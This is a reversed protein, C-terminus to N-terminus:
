GIVGFENRIKQQFNKIVKFIEKLTIQEVQTLKDPEVYNTPPLYDDIISKAQHKLRLGMLYYYTHMIERYDEEHFVGKQMLAKLREGTNTNGVGHKLAYMRAMDVIPTMAKKIDVVKKEDKDFTRINNFLTLPPDYHLANQAMNFFFRTSAGALLENVFESLEHLLSPDGHVFRCDFFTTVNIVTEPVSQNIWDRYNGKWHSLSHSWKPNKAMYGGKCFSFGIDDLRQSVISAFNLFYDRVVERQENAKDEYILANDQDTLLTQERRGESGLVFFVFKAPPEPLEELVGEIVRFLISDSITTVIQNVVSANVGRGLLQNVIEPVQEWKQKLEHVSRALKVSQIFLLPSQAHESLLRHRSLVGMHSGTKVLIYDVKLRYMTLIAEYAPTEGQLIVVPKEMVAGVFSDPLFDNALGKEIISRHTVFGSFEGEEEVFICPIKKDRMMVAADRLSTYPACLVVERIEFSNLQRSYIQDADLFNEDRTSYKRVFHAYEDNLLKQAFLTTFYNFFREYSRCLDKFHTKDLFFVRTGKAAVVTRISVKKNLLVSGGGFVFGSEYHEELRQKQTSDYFFADYRGEVIVDIGELETVDQHYILTEKEFHKETMMAAVDSLVEGPLLKFAQVTSLFAIRYELTDM